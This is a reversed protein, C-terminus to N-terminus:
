GKIIKAGAALLRPALVYAGAVGAVATAGLAKWNRGLFSKGEDQIKRFEEPTAAIRKTKATAQVHAFAEPQLLQSIDNRKKRAFAADEDSVYWSRKVKDYFVHWDDRLVKWKKYISPDMRGAQKAAEVQRIQEGVYENIAELDAENDALQTAVPVGFGLGAAAPILLPVIGFDDEDECGLEWAVMDQDRM